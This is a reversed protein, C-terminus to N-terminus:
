VLGIGRALMIGLILGTLLGFTFDVLKSKITETIPQTHPHQKEYTIFREVESQLHSIQKSLDAIRQKAPVFRKAVSTSHSQVVSQVTEAIDRKQPHLACDLAVHLQHPNKAECISQALKDYGFVGLIWASFDNHSQSVHRSFEEHSMSPLVALLDTLCYLKSGDHRVFARADDVRVDQIM